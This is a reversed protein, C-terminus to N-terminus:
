ELSRRASGRWSFRRLRSRAPKPGAEDRRASPANRRADPAKSRVGPPFVRLGAPKPFPVVGEHRLQRLIL